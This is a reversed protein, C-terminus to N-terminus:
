LLNCCILIIFLSTFLYVEEFWDNTFGLRKSERKDGVDIDKQFRVNDRLALAM